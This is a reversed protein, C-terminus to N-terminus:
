TRSAEGDTVNPCSTVSEVSLGFPALVRQIVDALAECGIPCVAADVADSTVDRGANGACAGTCIFAEDCYRCTM